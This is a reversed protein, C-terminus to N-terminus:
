VGYKEVVEVVEQERYGAASLLGKTSMMSKRAVTFSVSLLESTVVSM